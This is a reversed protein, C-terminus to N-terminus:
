RNQRKLVDGLEEVSDTVQQLLGGLREFLEPMKSNVSNM